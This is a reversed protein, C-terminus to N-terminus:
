DILRLQLRWVAVRWMLVAFVLLVGTHLLDSPGITALSVDRVLAV